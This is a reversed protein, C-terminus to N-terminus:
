PSVSEMNFKDLEAQVDAETVASVLYAWSQPSSSELQPELDSSVNQVLVGLRFALRVVQTGITSMAALNSSLSVAASALLGM